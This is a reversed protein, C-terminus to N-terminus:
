PRGFVQVGGSDYLRNYGAFRRAFSQDLVIQGEVMGTGRELHDWILVYYGDGIEYLSILEVLRDHLELMAREGGMILYATLSDTFITSGAPIRRVYSHVAVMSETIYPLPVPLEKTFIISDGSAHYSSTSFFSLLLLFAIAFAVRGVKPRNALRLFAWGAPLTSLILIFPPGRMVGAVEHMFTKTFVNAIPAITLLAATALIVVQGLERRELWCLGGYTALMVLMATGLYSLIAEIVFAQTVHIPHLSAGFVPTYYEPMFMWVVIGSFLSTAIFVLYSSFMVLYSLFPSYTPRATRVLASIGPYKVARLAFMFLILVFAPFPHIFFLVLAPAWFTAPGKWGKFSILSAASLLLFAASSAMPSLMAAGGIHVPLASLLLSTLLGAKTGGMREGLMFVVLVTLVNLMLNVARASEALPASFISVVAVLVHYIPYYMFPGLMQRYGTEVIEGAWRLHIYSDMGTIYPNPIVLSVRTVLALLFVEFLTLAREGRSARMLIIKLGLVAFAVSALVYYALPATYLSSWATHFTLALAAFFAADLIRPAGVPLAAHHGRGLHLGYLVAGALAFCSNVLLWIKPTVFRLFEIPLTALDLLQYVIFLALFVALLIHALRLLREILNEGLM